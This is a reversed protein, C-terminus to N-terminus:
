EGVLLRILAMTSASRPARRCPARLWNELDDDMSSATRQGKTPDSPGGSALVSRQSGSPSSSRSPLRVGKRLSNVCEELLETGSKKFGIDIDLENSLQPCLDLGLHTAAHVPFTPLQCSLNLLAELLGLLRAATFHVLLINHLLNTLVTQIDNVMLSDVVLEDRKHVGSSLWVLGDLALDVDEHGNTNLYTTHQKVQEPFLV